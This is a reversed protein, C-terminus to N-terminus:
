AFELVAAEAPPAAPVKPARIAVAAVLLALVAFGTGAVLASSMGDALVEPAPAVEARAAGDPMATGYVTVLIALGLTGGLQQVAQLLGGVAGSDEDRVGALIVASLPMFSLGAGLGFLALPGALATLYSSDAEVQTLWGMGAAILVLGALVFPKAGFRPLWLPVLQGVAFLMATLPLFALGTTLASYGLAQQLFQSLFFFMGFLTAPLLLMALYGGPANPERLLRLPLLPQGTRSEHVVFAALVAAAAAFIVHATTDGWGSEAVRIFGYVLAGMGLTSSLAGLVDFRGTQRPAEAIFRPAMAMVLVGIPVNIALVWRWSAWSTLMGGLILGISGGAASVATFVGLARNRPAGAEFNTMLLALVSPAAVAAGVGQLARAALLLGGSTAIAGLLSAATFLGVGAVLVRRRGLVDGIRGGLLLLGGFALTYGNLVWSLTTPSFGLDQQIDPLAVNVVTADLVVMLQVTVIVALAIGAHHRRPQPPM